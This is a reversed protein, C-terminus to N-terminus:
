SLWACRVQLCQPVTAGTGAARWFPQLSTAQAPLASSSSTSKLAAVESASGSSKSAGCGCCKPAGAARCARGIADAVELALHRAAGAAVALADRQHRMAIARMGLAGAVERTCCRGSCSITGGAGIGASSSVTVGAPLALVRRLNLQGRRLGAVAEDRPRAQQAAQRAGAGDARVRGAAACRCRSARRRVARGTAATRAPVPPARCRAGPSRGARPPDSELVFAPEGRMPDEEPQRRM